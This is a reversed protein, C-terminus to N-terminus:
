SGLLNNKAKAFEEDTLQGQEHLASLQMLAGAIDTPGKSGPDPTVKSNAVMEQAKTVFSEFEAKSKDKGNYSLNLAGSHSSISITDPWTAAWKAHSRIIEGVTSVELTRRQEEIWARTVLIFRSHTVALVGSHASRATDEMPKNVTSMQYTVPIHAIVEEGPNLMSNIVELPKPKAM